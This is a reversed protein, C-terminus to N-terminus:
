VVLVAVFFVHIPFTVQGGVGPNAEPLAPIDAHFARSPHNSIPGLCVEESIFLDRVEIYNYELNLTGELLLFKGNLSGSNPISTVPTYIIKGNSKRFFSGISNFIAM